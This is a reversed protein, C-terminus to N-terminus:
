EYIEPPLCSFDTNRVEDILKIRSDITFTFTHRYLKGREDEIELDSNDVWQVNTIHFRAEKDDPYMPAILVQNEMHIKSLLKIATTQAISAKTSWIDVQYTLNVPVHKVYRTHINGQADKYRRNVDGMTAATFNYRDMDIDFDPSRYFSIMDYPVYDKYKSDRLMNKFARNTTSYIIHESISSLYAYIARDYIEIDSFKEPM